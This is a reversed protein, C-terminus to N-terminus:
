FRYRHLLDTIVADVSLQRGRDQAAAAIEPPVAEGLEALLRYARDRTVQWTAPHHVVLALLEIAREPEGTQALLSAFGVLHRVVLMVSSAGAALRVSQVFHEGATTLDGRLRAAEGLYYLAASRGWPSGTKEFISLSDRARRELEDADNLDLAIPCLDIQMWAPGEPWNSDGSAAFAQQSLKYAEAYSREGVAIKALGNYSMAIEYSNGAQHAVTMGKFAMERADAYRGQICLLDSLSCLCWGIQNLNGVAENLALAEYYLREAEPYEGRTYAVQGLMDLSISEGWHDGIERSIDLSQRFLPKSQDYHVTHHAVEGLVHLARAVGWRDGAADFIARAQRALDEAEEYDFGPWISLMSLMLLFIATPPHEPSRLVPLAELYLSQAEAVKGLERFAMAQMVKIEALLIQEERTLPLTELHQVTGGLM